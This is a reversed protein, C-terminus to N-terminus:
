IKSNEKEVHIEGETETNYIPAITKTTTQLQSRSRYGGANKHCKTSKAVGLLRPIRGLASVAFSGLAISLVFTAVYVLGLAVAFIVRRAAPSPRREPQSAVM